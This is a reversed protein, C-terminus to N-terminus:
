KLLNGVRLGCFINFVQPILNEEEDYFGEIGNKGFFLCM